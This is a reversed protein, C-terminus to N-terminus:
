EVERFYLGATKEGPLSERKLFCDLVERCKAKTEVTFYLTVFDVYNYNKNGIYLPVSNLLTSYKREHCLITFDKGLRDRVNTQGTCKGCGKEGQAPCARFRMVPLYGYALLGKKVAKEAQEGNEPKEVASNIDRVLRMTIEPSLTIDKVGLDAYEGFAFSNTVNLGAGGYIEFGYEKAAALIGLNDATVAQVGMKRLEQLRVELEKEDRPFAVCPLECVLKDFMRETQPHKLVEEMPLIIKEIRISKDIGDIIQSFKEFRLRIKPKRRRENDPNNKKKPIDTFRLPKPGSRKEYLETLAQRRMENLATAPVAINGQIEATIKEADTLFVTGGTKSLHRKVTNEDIPFNRAQEPKMGDIKVSNSGDSVTLSSSNCDAEFLMEVPIKQVENRYLRRLDKLVSQAATVDEHRRAGFMSLDRKGQFYGQTFGSRSFVAQLAESDYDKGNLANKAATVAAAAYEPRKMRGEIKFSSVGAQALDGLKDILSLDKLSLAYDRGSCKFNLRCPQACRGRNGSRGGIVSSLLCTGSISMCLAGHIFVETEINVSESITKIEELSLERALVIRNFGMEQAALAGSVNHITMQTSGNLKMEPCCERWLRAVGLDQVIVADAGCLAIQEITRKAEDIEADTILTNMAAYVRVGRCRCFGVAQCLDEGCFNEASRRANFKGVGIYVADAGCRVAAIIQEMSGGPALIEPHDSNKM